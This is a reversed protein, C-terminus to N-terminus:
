LDNYSSLDSSTSNVSPPSSRVESPHAEAAASLTLSSSRSSSSRSSSSMHRSDSEAPLDVVATYQTDKADSPLQQQSDSQLLTTSSPDSRIVQHSEDSVLLSISSTTTTSPDEGKPSTISDDNDISTLEDDDDSQLFDLGPDREDSLDQMDDDALDFRRTVKGQAGVIHTWVTLLTVAPDGTVKADLVMCLVWHAARVISIFIAFFLAAWYAPASLMDEPVLAAAMCFAVCALATRSAANLWGAADSRYPRHYVVLAAIALLVIGICIYLIQCETVTNPHFFGAVFLVCSTWSSVSTWARKPHARIDAVTGGFAVRTELSFIAGSPLVYTAWTPVGRQQLWEVMEYQQFARGIRLYPFVALAVPVAATVVVGLAGVVVEWVAYDASQSVLQSSAYTTGTHFM